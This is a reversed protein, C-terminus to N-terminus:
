QISSKGGYLREKWRVQKGTLQQIISYSVALILLGLGLPHLLSSIVPERFHRDTMWRMSLIITVQSFVMLQWIEPYTIFFLQRWLSYFPLLFFAAAIIILSILALTSIAAVSYICKVLGNWVGRLNHYMRCSVLSSLNLVVHCGGQRNVEIGLWIDELIRSKVAEHGGFRWYDDKSFLLFQGIAISKNTKRSHHLLWLPMWSLIIFYILPIAAKEALSIATQRPFGSLLSCKTKLATTMVCSLMAPAHVTDADIFLLWTGRAKRALQYCAFPKGAWDPPLAKGHVLQTRESKSVMGQVISATSDSSNDDLVIIEFNPYDQQQLSNVCAEINAEEDRAPVLVSVFPSEKLTAADAKPKKVVRLNFILNLAFGFLGLTIVLQYIM